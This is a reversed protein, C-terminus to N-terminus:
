IPSTRQRSMCHNQKTKGVIVQHRVLLNEFGHQSDVDLHINKYQIIGKGAAKLVVAHFVSYIWKLHKCQLNPKLNRVFYSYHLVSQVKM